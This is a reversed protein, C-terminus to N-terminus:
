QEKIRPQNGIVRTRSSVHATVQATPDAPISIINIGASKKISNM